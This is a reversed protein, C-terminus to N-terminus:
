EYYLYYKAITMYSKFRKSFTQIGTDPYIGSNPSYTDPNKVLM